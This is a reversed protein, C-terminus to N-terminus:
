MCSSILLLIIRPISAVMQNLTKQRGAQQRSFYLNFYAFGYYQWNNQIPTFSPRKCSLFLMSQPHKLVPHQPSYKSRRPVFYRSFPSLQV